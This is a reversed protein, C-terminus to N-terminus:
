SWKFYTVFPFNFPFKTDIRTHNSLYRGADSVHLYHQGLVVNLNYLLIEILSNNNKKIKVM